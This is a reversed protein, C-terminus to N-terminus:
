KRSGGEPQAEDAPQLMRKTPGFMLFGMAMSVSQEFVSTLTGRIRGKCHPCRGSEDRRILADLALVFGDWGEPRWDTTVIRRFRLLAEAAGDQRAGTKELEFAATALIASQVTSLM